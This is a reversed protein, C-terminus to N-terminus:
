AIKLVKALKEQPYHVWFQWTVGHKGEAWDRKSIQEIPYDPNTKKLHSVFASSIVVLTENKEPNLKTKEIEELRATEIFLTGQTEKWTPYDVGNLSYFTPVLTGYTLTLRYNMSWGSPSIGDTKFKKEIDNKTGIFRPIVEELIYDVSFLYDPFFVTVGDGQHSVEIGDLSSMLLRMPFIAQTLVEPAEFGSRQERILVESKKLDFTLLTGTIPLNLKQPDQHFLSVPSKKVREVFRKASSQLKKASGLAIQTLIKIGAVPNNHIFSWLDESNFVLFESDDVSTLTASRPCKEIFGSEGFARGSDSAYELVTGSRSVKITGSVLFYISDGPSDEPYVVQDKSFLLTRGIESLLSSEEDTLTNFTNSKKLFANAGKVLRV